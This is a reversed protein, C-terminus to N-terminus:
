EKACLLHCQIQESLIFFGMIERYIQLYAEPCAEFMLRQQPFVIKEFHWNPINTIRIIQIKKTSNRYYCLIQNNLETPLANFM